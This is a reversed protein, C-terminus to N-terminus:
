GIENAIMANKKRRVVAERPCLRESATFDLLRHTVAKYVVIPVCPTTGTSQFTKVVVNRITHGGGRLHRLLYQLRRPNNRQCLFLCPLEDTRVATGVEPFVGLFFVTCGENRVVLERLHRGDPTSDFILFTLSPFVKSPLTL